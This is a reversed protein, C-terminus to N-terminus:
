EHSTKSAESDKVKTDPMKTTCTSEVISNSRVGSQCCSLRRILLKVDMRFYKNFIFFVIPTTYANTGIVGSMIADTIFLSKDNEKWRIDSNSLIVFYLGQPLWALLTLLANVGLMLQLKNIADSDTSALSETVIKSRKRICLRIFILSYSIIIITFPLLSKAMTIWKYYDRLVIPGTECLTWGSKHYILTSNEATVIEPLAAWLWILLAVFFKKVKGYAAMRFPFYVLVLRELSIAANCLLSARASSLSIFLMVSCLGVSGQFSIFFINDTM